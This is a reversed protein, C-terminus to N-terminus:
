KNRKLALHDLFSKPKVVPAPTPEPQPEPVPKNKNAQKEKAALVRTVAEDATFDYGCKPCTEETKGIEAECEPCLKTEDPM